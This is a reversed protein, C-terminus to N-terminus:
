MKMANDTMGLIPGMISWMVFGVVVGMIVMMAPDIKSTLWDTADSLEEEYNKSVILLMEGLNGSQEGTNILYLAMEPFINTEKLFPTVKGQKVIKDKAGELAELLVRNDIINCVIELAPALNVGSELLMGLTSTFQVVANTRAFFKIVPLQLKLTDVSKKGYPTKIFYTFGVVVVGIVVLLETYHNVLLDSLAMLFKTQPPLVGKMKIIVDILQPMVFTMIGVVILAIVGLQVLPYALAKSVKKRLAERRELYIVLRDLILELKGTAEGAKVLQVYITSFAQPYRALGDALSDGEKIGDKVTVLISHMQGKLQDVLLELAQLLPVGSKLLVSLQKTFFILEKFPVPKIFLFNIFSSKSATSSQLEITVPYMQKALLDARVATSSSADMSGSVVKGSKLLAKYVYLAM